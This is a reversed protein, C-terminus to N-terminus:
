RLHASLDLDECDQQFHQAGAIDYGGTTTYPAVITGM